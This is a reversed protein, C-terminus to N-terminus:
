PWTRGKYFPGDCTACFHIGAGIFEDEGPVNLRLYTSGTAVLMARAGYEAGDATHVDRSAARADRHDDVEQARLIEVGFRQAQETLRDALDAGGIGEPWGPFNDLRETVGAQGGVGAREIILCDM